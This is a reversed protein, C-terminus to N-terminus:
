AVDHVISYAISRRGGSLASHYILVCAVNAACVEQRETLDFLGVYRAGEECLSEVDVMSM